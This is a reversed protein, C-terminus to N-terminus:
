MIPVFTVPFTRPRIPIPLIACAIAFFACKLQVDLSIFSTTTLTPSNYAINVDVALSLSDAFAKRFVRAVLFVLLGCDPVALLHLTIGSFVPEFGLVPFGGEGGVDVVRDSLKEPLRTRFDFVKFSGVFIEDLLHEGVVDVGGGAPVVLDRDLFGALFEDAPGLEFLALFWGAVSVM